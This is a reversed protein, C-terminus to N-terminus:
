GPCLLRILHSKLIQDLKVDKQSVERPGKHFFLNVHPFLNSAPLM